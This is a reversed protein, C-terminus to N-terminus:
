IAMEKDLMSRIIGLLQGATMGESFPLIEGPEMKSLLDLANTLNKKEGSFDNLQGAIRGMLFHALVFNQDLYLAQRIFDAADKIQDLEQCIFALLYYNGPNLKEERVAKFCWQRALTLEGQNALARALLVMSESVMFFGDDKKSCQELLRTLMKISQPYQGNKYFKRARHYMDHRPEGTKDPSVLIRDAKRRLQLRREELNVPNRTQMGPRRRNGGSALYSNAAKPLSAPTHGPVQSGPTGSQLSFITKGLGQERFTICGKNDERSKRYLTAGPFRVANMGPHQFYPSESSGPVLWGGDTLSQALHRIVHARRKDNFYILVNRCFVLDMEQTNNLSSPYSDEALNLQEFKVMSKLRGSIEFRNNGRESFYKNIIYAPTDRLSWRSYIGKRAKQLFRANIDTGLISYKLKRGTEVMQDLVMAISYPEEGSCCAASWIRITKDQAQGARIMPPFINDRLAQFVNKDRLFFTEGITLHEILPALAQRVPRASVLWRALDEPNEFNMEGAAARLGRDLDNFRDGPFYLGTRSNIFRSVQYMLDAPIKQGRHPLAPNFNNKKM